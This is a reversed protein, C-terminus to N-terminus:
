AACAAFWNAGNVVGCGYSRPARGDRKIGETRRKGGGGQDTSSASAQKM